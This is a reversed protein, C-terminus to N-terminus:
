QLVKTWSSIFNLGRGNTYGNVISKGYLSDNIKPLESELVIVGGATDGSYKLVGAGKVLRIEDFANQDINPAHDQGWQQNEIQIGDYIIGVRSGFMGHIMPKSIGNGTNLINVGSIQELAKALGRGSYIDKQLESLLFTKASTSLERIQSDEVIVENLSEIHHELFFKKFVSKNLNLEQFLDECKLHSIKINIKGSCQNKFKFFGDDDSYVKQDSDIVQITAQSIPTNDHLDLIQGEFELDCERAIVFVRPWCQFALRLKKNIVVKINVINKTNLKFLKAFFSLFKM